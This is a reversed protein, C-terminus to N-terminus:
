STSRRPESTTYTEFFCVVEMKLASLVVATPFGNPETEHRHAVVTEHSESAIEFEDSRLEWHICNGTTRFLNGTEQM